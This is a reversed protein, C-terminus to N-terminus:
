AATGTVDPNGGPCGTRSREGAREGYLKGTRFVDVLLWARADDNM